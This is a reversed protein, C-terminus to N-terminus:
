DADKHELEVTVGHDADANKLLKDERHSKWLCVCVFVVGLTALGVVGWGVINALEAGTM